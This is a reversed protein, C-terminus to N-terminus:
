LTAPSNEDAEALETHGLRELARDIELLGSTGARDNGMPSETAARELARADERMKLLEAVRDERSRSRDSLIKAIQDNVPNTM